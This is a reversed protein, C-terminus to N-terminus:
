QGKKIGKARSSVSGVGARSLEASISLRGCVSDSPHLASRLQIYGRSAPRQVDGCRDM